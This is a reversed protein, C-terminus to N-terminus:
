LFGLLFYGPYPRILGRAVVIPGPYPRILNQSSLPLMGHRGSRWTKFSPWPKDVYPEPYPRILHPYPQIVGSLTGSLAGSLADPYAVSLPKHAYAPSIRM